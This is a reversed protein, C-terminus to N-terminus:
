HLTIYSPAETCLSTMAYMALQGARQTICLRVCGVQIHVAHSVVDLSTHVANFAIM